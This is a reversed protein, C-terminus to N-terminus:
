RAGISISASRGRRRAKVPNGFLLRNVGTVPDFIPGAKRGLKKHARFRRTYALITPMEKAGLLLGEIDLDYDLAPWHIGEGGGRKRWLSRESARSEALSPYWSLPLSLIRGDDLWVTLLGGRTSVNKVRADSTTM